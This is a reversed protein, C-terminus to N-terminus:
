AGESFRDQIYALKAAHDRASSLFRVWAHREHWVAALEWVCYTGRQSTEAPILTYRDPQGVPKYYAVEWM